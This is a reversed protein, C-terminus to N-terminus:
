KELLPLAPEAAPIEVGYQLLLQRAAESEHVMYHAVIEQEVAKRISGGSASHVRVLEDLSADTRLSGLGHILELRVAQDDERAWMSRFTAPGADSDGIILSFGIAKRLEPDNEELYCRLLERSAIARPADAILEVLARREDTEMGESWMNAIRRAVREDRLDISPGISRLIWAGRNDSRLVRQFVAGILIDNSLRERRMSSLIENPLTRYGGAQKEMHAVCLGPLFRPEHLFLQEWFTVQKSDDWAEPLSTLTGAIVLAPIYLDPLTQSEVLSALLDHPLNGYAALAYALLGVLQPNRSTTMRAVITDNTAKQNDTSRLRVGLEVITAITGREDGQFSLEELRSLVDDVGAALSPHSLPPDGATSTKPAIDHGFSAPASGTAATRQAELRNPATPHEIWSDLVAFGVLVAACLIPLLCVRQYWPRSGPSNM